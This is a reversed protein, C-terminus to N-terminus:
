TVVVVEDIFSLLTRIIIESCVLSKNCANVNRVVASQEVDQVPSFVGAISLKDAGDFERTGSM